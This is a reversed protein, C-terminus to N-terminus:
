IKRKGQLAINKRERMQKNSNLEKKERDLKRKMKESRNEKKKPQTLKEKKKM